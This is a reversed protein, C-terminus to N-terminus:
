HTTPGGCEAVDPAIRDDAVLDDGEDTALVGLGDYHAVANEATRVFFADVIWVTLWAGLAGEPLMTISERVVGDRLVVGGLGPM